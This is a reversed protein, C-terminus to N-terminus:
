IFIIGPSEIKIHTGDIAGIVRPFRSIEFFKNQTRRLEMRTRPMKIIQPYLRAIAESVKKVIRSVTSLHMGMYDAM